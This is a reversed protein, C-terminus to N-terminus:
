PEITEENKEKEEKAAVEDQEEFAERIMAQDNNIEKGERAEMLMIKIQPNEEGEFVNLRELVERETSDTFTLRIFIIICVILVVTLITIIIFKIIDAFTLSKTPTSHSQLPEWCKESKFGISITPKEGKYSTLCSDLHLGNLQQNLTEDFKCQNFTIQSQEMSILNCKINFFSCFLLITAQNRHISLVTSDGFVDDFLITSLTGEQNGELKLCSMQLHEFIFDRIEFKQALQTQLQLATSKISMGTINGGSLEIADDCKLYIANKAVSNSFIKYFHAHTIKAQESCSAGIIAAIGTKAGCESFCDNKLTLRVGSFAISGSQKNSVCYIFSSDQVTLIGKFKQMFYVIAGEESLIDKFRCKIITLYDDKTEVVQSIYQQDIAMSSLQLASNSFHNFDTNKVFINSSRSFIIQSSFYNFKSNLLKVNISNQSLVPSNSFSRKLFLSSLTLNTKM